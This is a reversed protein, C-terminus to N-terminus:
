TLKFMTDINEVGQTSLYRNVGKSHKSPEDHDGNTKESSTTKNSSSTKHDAVPPVWLREELEPFVTGSADAEGDGRGDEEGDGLVAPVTAQFFYEFIANLNM